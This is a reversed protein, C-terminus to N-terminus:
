AQEGWTHVSTVGGRGGPVAGFGLAVQLSPSLSWSQPCRFAPSVRQSSTQMLMEKGVSILDEIVQPSSKQVGVGPVSSLEDGELDTGLHSVFLFFSFLGRDLSIFHHSEFSM